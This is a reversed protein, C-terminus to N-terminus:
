CGRVTRSEGWLLCGCRQCAVTWWSTGLVWSKTSWSQGSWAQYSRCPRAPAHISVHPAYMEAGRACGPAQRGHLTHVQGTCAKRAQLHHAMPYRQQQVVLRHGCATGPQCAAARRRVKEHSITHDALELGAKYVKMVEACAPLPCSIPEHSQQLLPRKSVAGQMCCRCMWGM